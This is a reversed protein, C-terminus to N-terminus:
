AVRRRRGALLGCIGMGALIMTSPEPICSRGASQLAGGLTANWFINLTGIDSLGSAAVPGLDADYSFQAFNSEGIRTDNDTVLGAAGPLGVPADGTM